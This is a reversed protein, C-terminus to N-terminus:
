KLTGKYNFIEGKYLEIVISPSVVICIIDIVARITLFHINKFFITNLPKGQLSHLRIAVMFRRMVWIPCLELVRSDSYPWGGEWFNIWTPLVYGSCYVARYKSYSGCQNLAAAPLCALYVSAGVRFYRIKM